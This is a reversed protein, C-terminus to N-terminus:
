QGRGTAGGGDPDRITSFGCRLWGTHVTNRESTERGEHSTMVLGRRLVVLTDDDDSAPPAEIAPM